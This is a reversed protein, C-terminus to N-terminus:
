MMKRFGIMRVPPNPSLSAANVATARDAPVARTAPMMVMAIPATPLKGSARAAPRPMLPITANESVARPRDGDPAIPTIRSSPMATVMRTSTPRRSAIMFATGSASFRAMPTPMPRNMRNMPKALPPKTTPLAGTVGVVKWRGVVAASKTNQIPRTRVITRHDRRILAASTILM